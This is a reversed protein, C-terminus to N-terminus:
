AGTAEIKLRVSARESRLFDGRYLYYKKVVPSGEETELVHLVHDDLSTDPTSGEYFRRLLGEKYAEELKERAVVPHIGENWALEELWRGTEVLEQIALKRYCELAARAFEQTSPVTETRCIGRKPVALVQGCIEALDRYNPATGKRFPYNERWDSQRGETEVFQLFEKYAPSNAFLEQLVELQGQLLAEALKQLVETSVYNDGEVIIFGSAQLFRRYEKLSVPKINLVEAVQDNTLTQAKALETILKLLQEAKFICAGTSVQPRVPKEETEVEESDEVTLEQPTQSDDVEVVATIKVTPLNWRVFFLNEKTHDPAWIVDESLAVAEVFVEEQAEVVMRAAGFCTATEWLLDVLSVCHLQPLFPHHLTGVLRQQLVQPTRRAEFFVPSMGEGLATRAVGQDSTVMYLSQGASMRSQHEKATEIILRDAMSKQIRSLNKLDPFEQDSDNQFVFRLPDGGIGAREIEIESQWELRLLVRQTGQGAMHLKLCSAKQGATSPLKHRRSFFGDCWNLIEIGAVSPVRLRVMPFLFLRAFDAAGQRLASTDMVWTAPRQYPWDNMADPSFTPFLIGLRRAIDQMTEVLDHILSSTQKNNLDPLSRNLSEELESETPTTWLWSGNAIAQCRLEQEDEPEEAPSAFLEVTGLHLWKAEEFCKDEHVEFHFRTGVRAANALLSVTQEHTRLMAVQSPKEVKQETSQLKTM